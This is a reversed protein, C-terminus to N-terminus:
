VSNIMYTLKMDRSYAFNGIGQRFLRRSYFAM